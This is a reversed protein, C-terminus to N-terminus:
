MDFANEISEYKLIVFKKRIESRCSRAPWESLSKITKQVGLKSVIGYTNFIIRNLKLKIM